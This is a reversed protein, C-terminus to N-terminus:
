YFVITFFGPNWYTATNNDLDIGTWPSATAYWTNPDTTSVSSSLGDLWLGFSLVAGPKYFAAWVQHGGVTGPAPSTGSWSLIYQTRGALQAQTIEGELFPFNKQITFAPVDNSATHRILSSTAAHVPIVGSGFAPKVWSDPLFGAATLGGGAALMAKLLNRRSIKRKDM